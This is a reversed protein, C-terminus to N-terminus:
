NLFHPKLYKLMGFTRFRKIKMVEMLEADCIAYQKNRPDYLNREKIIAWVKKVVEHRPLADAGMLASLQPSLNYPRTFGTQKKPGSSKKASKKSKYDEDNDNDSDSNSDKAAKRKRKVPAKRAPACARALKPKELEEEESSSESGKSEESEEEKSLKHIEEHAIDKIEAKQSLLSFGLDQELQTRISKPTFTYLLEKDSKQLIDIIKAKLEEKSIKSM